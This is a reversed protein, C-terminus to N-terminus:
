RRAERIEDKRVTNGSEVDGIGMNVPNNRAKLAKVRNGSYFELM